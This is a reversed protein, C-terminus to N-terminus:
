FFGHIGANEKGSYFEKVHPILTQNQYKKVITGEPMKNCAPGLTSSWFNQFWGEGSMVDPQPVSRLVAKLAAEAHPGWESTKLTKDSAQQIKKLSGPASMRGSIEAFVRLLKFNLKASVKPFCKPESRALRRGPSKHRSLPNHPGTQWPNTPRPNQSPPGCSNPCFCLRCRAFTTKRSVIRASSRRAARWVKIAIKFV